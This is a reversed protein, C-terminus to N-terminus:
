SSSRTAGLRLQEAVDPALLLRHGLVVCRVAQRRSDALSARFQRSCTLVLARAIWGEPLDLNRAQGWRVTGDVPEFPVLTSGGGPPRGHADVRQIILVPQRLDTDVTVPPIPDNLSWARGALSVALRDAALPGALALLETLPRAYAGPEFSRVFALFLPREGRFAALCPVVGVGAQLDLTAEEIFFRDLDDWRQM